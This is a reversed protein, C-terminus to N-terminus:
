EENPQQEKTLWRQLKKGIGTGGKPGGDSTMKDYRKRADPSLKLYNPDVYKKNGM